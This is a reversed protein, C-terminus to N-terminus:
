RSGYSTPLIINSGAFPDSVAEYAQDRSIELAIAESAPNSAHTASPEPLASLVFLTVAMAGCATCAFLPISLRFGGLTRPEQRRVNQLLREEFGEGPDRVPMGALLTKLTTLGEEEARCGACDSLHRRVELMEYGTLEGDLYASLRNQVCKCNM